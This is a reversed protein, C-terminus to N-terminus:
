GNHTTQKPAVDRLPRVHCNLAFGVKSFLDHSSFVMQNLWSCPSIDWLALVGQVVVAPLFLPDSGFM